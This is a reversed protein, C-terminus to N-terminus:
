CEITATGDAVTLELRMYGTGQGTVYGQFSESASIIIKSEERQRKWRQGGMQAWIPGDYPGMM